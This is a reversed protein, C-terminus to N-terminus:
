IIRSNEAMFNIELIVDGAYITPVFIKLTFLHEAIDVNGIERSLLTILHVELLVQRGVLQQLLDTSHAILHHRM